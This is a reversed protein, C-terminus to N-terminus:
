AGALLPRWDDEGGAPKLLLPPREPATIDEAPEESRESVIANIDLLSAFHEGLDGRAGDMSWRRILALTSTETTSKKFM